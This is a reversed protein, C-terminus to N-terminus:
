LQCTLVDTRGSDPVLEPGRTQVGCGSYPTQLYSWTLDWYANFRVSGTQYVGTPGANGGFNTEGGGNNCGTTGNTQTMNGAVVVNSVGFANGGPYKAEAWMGLTCAIQTPAPPVPLSPSGACSSLLLYALVAFAGFGVSRVAKALGTPYGRM